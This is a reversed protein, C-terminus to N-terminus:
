QAIFNASLFQVTKAKDWGPYNAPVYTGAAMGQLKAVNVCSGMGSAVTGLLYFNLQAVITAKQHATGSSTLITRVSASSTCGPNTFSIGANLLHQITVNASNSINNGMAAKITANKNYIATWPVINGYVPIAPSRTPKANTAWETIYWCEDAFSTPANSAHTAIQQSGWASPTTCHWAFAPRSALTAVVPVTYSGLRILRRRSPSTPLAGGMVAGSDAEPAKNKDLEINSM